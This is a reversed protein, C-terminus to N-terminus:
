KIDGTLIDDTSAQELRAIRYGRVYDAIFRKLDSLPVEIEEKSKSKAIIIVPDDDHFDGNHHFTVKDGEFTHM